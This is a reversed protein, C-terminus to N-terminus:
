RNIKVRVHIQPPSTSEDVRMIRVWGYGFYAYENVEIRGHFGRDFPSTVELYYREHGGWTNPSIQVVVEEFNASQGLPITLPEGNQQRDYLTTAWYGFTASLLFALLSVSALRFKWSRLLDLM